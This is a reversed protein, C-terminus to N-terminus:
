FKDIRTKEHDFFDICVCYGVTPAPNMQMLRMKVFHPLEFDFCNVAIWSTVSSEMDPQLMVSGHRDKIFNLRKMSISQNVLVLVLRNYM